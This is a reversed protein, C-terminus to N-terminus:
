RKKLSEMWRSLIKTRMRTRTRTRTRTRMREEDEDEDKDEDEKKEANESKGKAEEAGTQVAKLGTKAGFLALENGDVGVWRRCKGDERGVYYLPVKSWVSNVEMKTRLERTPDSIRGESVASPLISFVEFKWQLLLYIM